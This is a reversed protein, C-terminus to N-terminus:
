HSSDIYLKEKIAFIFVTASILPTILWALTSSLYLGAAYSYIDLWRICVSEFITEVILIIGFTCGLWYVLLEWFGINKSRKEMLVRAAIIAIITGLIGGLCEDNFGYRFGPYLKNFVHILVTVLGISGGLWYISLELGDKKSWRKILLIIASILAILGGLVYGLSDEYFYLIELHFDECFTVSLFYLYSSCLLWAIGYLFRPIDIKLKRKEEYNVPYTKIGELQSM